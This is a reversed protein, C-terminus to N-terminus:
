LLYCNQVVNNKFEHKVQCKHLFWWSIDSNKITTRLQKPSCYKRLNYLFIFFTVCVFCVIHWIIKVQADISGIFVSKSCIRLYCGFIVKLKSFQFQLNKQCVITNKLHYLYIFGDRNIYKSCIKCGNALWFSLLMSIQYLNSSFLNFLIGSNFVFRFM